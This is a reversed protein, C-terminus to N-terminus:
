YRRGCCSRVPRPIVSVTLTAQTSGGNGDQVVVMIHYDGYDNPAEWTVIPGDGNLSGGTSSWKFQAADGEPDSAVCKIKSNGRPYVNIYEAELSSIVPPKNSNMDPSALCASFLMALVLVIGLSIKGVRSKMLAVEM